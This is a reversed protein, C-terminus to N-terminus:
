DSNLKKSQLLLEENCDEHRGQRRLPKVAKEMNM